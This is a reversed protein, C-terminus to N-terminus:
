VNPNVFDKDSEPWFITKLPLKCAMAHLYFQSSKIDIPKSNRIFTYFHEMMVDFTYQNAARQDADALNAYEVDNALIVKRIYNSIRHMPQNKIIEGLIGFPQDHLFGHTTSEWTAPHAAITPIGMIAAELAATGMGIFLHAEGVVEAFRKYDLNGRVFVTDQLGLERIRNKIKEMLDGNGYIDWTVSHGEKILQKIDDLVTFNYQKMSSCLRGVSIIHGKRIDALTKRFTAEPHFIPVPFIISGDFAREYATEHSKRVQPSMFAKQTDPLFKDYLHCPFQFINGGSHYHHLNTPKMEWPSYALCVVGSRSATHQSILTAICLSTRDFCPMADVDALHKKTFWKSYAPVLLKHLRPLVMLKVGDPIALEPNPSFKTLLTVRHGDEILKRSIRCILTEIGGMALREHMM